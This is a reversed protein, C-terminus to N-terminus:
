TLKWEIPVCNQERQVYEECFWSHMQTRTMSKNVYRGLEQSGGGVM